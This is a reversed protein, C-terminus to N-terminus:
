RNVFYYYYYYTGAFFLAHSIKWQVLHFRLVCSFGKTTMHTSM